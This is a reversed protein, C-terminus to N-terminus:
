QRKLAKALNFYCTYFNNLLQKPNNDLKSNENFDCLKFFANIFHCFCEHNSLLVFGHTNELSTLEDVQSESTAVKKSLQTLEEDSANLGKTQEASISKHSPPQLEGRAHTLLNYIIGEPLKKDTIHDAEAPFLSFKMAQLLSNFACTVNFNTFGVGVIPDSIEPMVIKPLMVPKVYQAPQCAIGELTENDESSLDVLSQTWQAAKVLQCTESDQCTESNFLDDEDFKTPAADDFLVKQRTNLDGVHTYTENYIDSVDSVLDCDNITDDEKIQPFLKLQKWKNDIDHPSILFRIKQEGSMYCEGNKKIEAAEYAEIFEAKEALFAEQGKVMSVRSFLMFFQEYNTILKRKSSIVLKYLDMNTAAPM